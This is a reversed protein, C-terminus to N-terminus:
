EEVREVCDVYVDITNAEKLDLINVDDNSHENYVDWFLEEAEQASDAAVEIKYTTTQVVNVMYKM